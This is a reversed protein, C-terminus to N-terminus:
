FKTHMELGRMWTVNAAWRLIVIIPAAYLNHLWIWVNDRYKTTLVREVHTRGESRSTLNSFFVYSVYL